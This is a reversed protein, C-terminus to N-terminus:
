CTIDLLPCCLAASSSATWSKQLFALLGLSEMATLHHLLLELALHYESRYSPPLNWVDLSCDIRTQYKIVATQQRELKVVLLLSFPTFLLPVIRGPKWAWMRGRAWPASCPLSSHCALSRGGSSLEAEPEESTRVGSEKVWRGSLECM